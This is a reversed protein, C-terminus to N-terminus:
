PVIIQVQRFGTTWQTQYPLRGLCRKEARRRLSRRQVTRCTTTSKRRYQWCIVCYTWYCADKVTYSKPNEHRHIQLNSDEPVNCWMSQLVTGVKLLFITSGDELYFM